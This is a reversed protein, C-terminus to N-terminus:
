RRRYTVSGAARRVTPRHVGCPHIVTPLESAEIQTGDNARFGFSIEPPDPRELQVRLGMTLADGHHPRRTRHNM